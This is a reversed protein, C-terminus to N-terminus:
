GAYKRRRLNGPGSSKDNGGTNDGETNQEPESEVGGGGGGGGGGDGEGGGPPGAKAASKRARKEAQADKTLARNKLACKPCLAGEICPERTGELVAHCEECRCAGNTAVKKEKAERLAKKISPRSLKNKMDKVAVAVEELDRSRCAQSIRESIRSLTGWREAEFVRQGGRVQEGALRDRMIRLAELNGKLDGLKAKM